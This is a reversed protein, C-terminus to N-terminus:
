GSRKAARGAAALSPDLPNLAHARRYYGLALERQGRRAALDGLLAWTVFNQPERRAARDLTDVADQALNFRALAAARLYYTAMPDGDIALSRNAYRLAAAPDAALAAQGKSRYLDALGQRSLGAGGVVVVAAAAALSGTLVPRRIGARVARAVTGGSADYTAPRGVARAGPSRPGRARVIVAAMCLAVGSVGPLLHIWDFSTHVVWATFGGAAAVLCGRSLAGRRADDRMRWMGLAVGALFVLLLALGVLGTESLAQIELSHPQSVDEAVSRHKFWAPTFGGAGVGLLPHGEWAHWAVRWYDYRNGAGSFLRGTAQSPSQGAPESLHIFAHYQTSLEHSLSRAKVAGALAAGGVVLVLGLTALSRAPVRAETASLLRELGALGTWVLGVVVSVLLITVAARHAPTTIPRGAQAAVYVAVLRHWSVVVALLVAFLLYARRRRGPVFGLAVLAAGALAVAAGRSQSLVVLCALLAAGISGAAAAALRRSEALAVMPWFGIAFASAEGNIYGLPLNLRGGLFITGPKDLMRFVVSAAVALTGAGISALLLAARRDSRVLVLAVGLVAALVLLRNGDVTASDASEAWAGSLLTWAALATLGGLALKAATGLAPPWAVAAAAAVVVVGLGIPVWVTSNYYGFFFPSLGAGLGLLAILALAPRVPRRGPSIPPRPPAFAAADM